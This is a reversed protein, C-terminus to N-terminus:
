DTGAARRRRSQLPVQKVRSHLTGLSQRAYKDRGTAMATTTNRLECAHSPYLPISLRRGAPSLAQPLVDAVPRARREGWLKPFPITLAGILRMEQRALRIRILPSDSNWLQFAHPFEVVSANSRCGKVVSRSFRRCSTPHVKSPEPEGRLM